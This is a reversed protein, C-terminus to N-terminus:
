RLSNDTIKSGTCNELYRLLCFSGALVTYKAVLDADARGCLVQSLLIVQDNQPPM